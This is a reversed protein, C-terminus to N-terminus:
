RRIGGSHNKNSQGTTQPSTKYREHVKKAPKEAEAKFNMFEEMRGKLDNLLAKVVPLHHLGVDGFTIRWGIATTNAGVSEAVEKLMQNYSVRMDRYEGQEADKQAKSLDYAYKELLRFITPHVSQWITNWANERYEHKQINDAQNLLDVFDAWPEPASKISYIRRVINESSQQDRLTRSNKNAVRHTQSYRSLDRPNGTHALRDIVLREVDEPLRGNWM